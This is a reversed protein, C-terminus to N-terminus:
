AGKAEWSRRFGPLGIGLYGCAFLLLFPAGILTQPRGLTVVLCVLMVAGLVLETAGLPVWRRRRLLPDPASHVRGNYKPTRLFPSRRGLVAEAVARANTLSIGIGLAMLAPLRITTQWLSAGQAWQSAMYFTCAALTGLVLLTGGVIFAAPPSIELSGPNWPLLLLPAALVALLM